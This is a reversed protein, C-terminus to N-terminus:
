TPAASSSCCATSSPPCAVDSRHPQRPPAPLLSRGSSERWTAACEAMRRCRVAGARWGPGTRAMRFRVFPPRTDVAASAESTDVYPREFLGLAFKLRLVRRGQRALECAIATLLGTRDGDGGFVPRAWFSYWNALSRLHGYWAFTMFVNSAALLLVTQLSIPLSTM